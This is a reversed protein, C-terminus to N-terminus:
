IHLQRNSLEWQNKWLNKLMQMNMIIKRTLKWGEENNEIEIFLMAIWWTAHDFYGPTDKIGGKKLQKWSFIVGWFNLGMKAGAM